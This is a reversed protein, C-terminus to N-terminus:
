VRGMVLDVMSIVKYQGQDDGFYDIVQKADDLSWFNLKQGENDLLVTNNELIYFM